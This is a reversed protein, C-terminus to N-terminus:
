PHLSLIYQVKKLDSSEIASYLKEKALAVNGM